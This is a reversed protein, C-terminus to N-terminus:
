DPTNPPRARVPFSSRSIIKGTEDVIFRCARDAHRFTLRWRGIDTDVGADCLSTLTGQRMAQRVQDETMGFAGALLAASVVFGSGDREVHTM